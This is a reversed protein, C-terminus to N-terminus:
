MVVSLKMGVSCPKEKEGETLMNNMNPCKKEEWAIDKYHGPCSFLMNLGQPSRVSFPWTVMKNGINYSSYIQKGSWVKVDCNYPCPEMVRLWKYMSLIVKATSHALFEDGCHIQFYLMLYLDSFLARLHSISIVQLTHQSEKVRTYLLDKLRVITNKWLFSRAGRSSPPLSYTNRQISTAHYFPLSKNSTQTM